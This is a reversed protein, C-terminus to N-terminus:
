HRTHDLFDVLVLDHTPAPFIFLTKVEQSKVEVENMIKLRSLLELIAFETQGDSIMVGRIEAILNIM